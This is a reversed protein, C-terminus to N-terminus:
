DIGLAKMRRYLHQRQIGLLRAAKSRNGEARRLADEIATREADAKRDKLDPLARATGVPSLHEPLIVTGGSRVAAKLARRIEKNLGRVGTPWRRACLSDLAAPSLHADADVRELAAGLLHVALDRVDQPREDLSPIVIEAESIRAHFDLRLRGGSILSEPDRNTASILRLDSTRDRDEGAVRFRGTDLVTLLRAQSPEPLEGVEDLFLTGGDAEQLAGVWRAVGSYARDRVGFLKEELREPALNACNVQVFPRSRRSSNAHIVEALTSKGVGTPGLLLVPGPPDDFLNAWEVEELVAAFAVSRGVLREHGVLRGRVERTADAPGPVSRRAAAIREVMPGFVSCFRDVAKRDRTDFAAKGGACDQLYLVGVPHDRGLPACLAQRLAERQVSGADALSSEMLNTCHVTTRERLAKRIVTRSFSDLAAPQGGSASALWWIPSDASPAFLGLLGRAAGTVGVVLELADALIREDDSRTPLDVLAALFRNEAELRALRVEPSLQM